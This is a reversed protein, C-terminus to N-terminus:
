PAQGAVPFQNFLHSHTWAWLDPQQLIPKMISLIAYGQGESQFFHMYVFTPLSWVHICYMHANSVNVVYMHM